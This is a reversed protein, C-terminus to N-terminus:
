IEVIARPTKHLREISGGAGILFNDCVTVFMRASAIVPHLGINMNASLAMTEDGRILPREVVDYGQGHCHLRREESFGRARIYANYEEFIDRCSAGPRLLTLTFEQAEVAMGYADVLEQPAKGLVFFRGVHTFYGGPGTNEAQFYFIDGTRIERGQEPRRRISAPQGPPASSGLFYGTESGLLQGIYEGYAMVEFDKMGPRIHARVKALIEDQMAAARRILSIEEPSKVAKIPDVIPTADVITLGALLEPLKSGFGYYMSHDGVLGLTRIGSKKIERAVIEVDYVGTYDVAPFMPTCLRRGVGPFAQDTGDLKTDDHFPGHTVLTMLGDLPFIVSQPYSTLASTGTFWRSYGGIGALNNAGQIVLAEIKAAPMQARVAAWRRQLETLPLPTCIRENAKAM